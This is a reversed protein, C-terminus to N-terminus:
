GGGNGGGISGGGGGSSRPIEKWYRRECYKCIWEQDEIRSLDARKLRSLIGNGQIKRIADQAEPLFRTKETKVMANRKGCNPCTREFVREYVFMGGFLVIVFILIWALLDWPIGLVEELWKM